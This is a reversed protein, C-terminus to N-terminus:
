SPDDEPTVAEVVANVVSEDPIPEKPMQHGAKYVELAKKAAKAMFDMALDGAERGDQFVRVLNQEGRWKPVFSSEGAAIADLEVVKEINDKIDLILEDLHTEILYLCAMAGEIDDPDKLGHRIFGMRESTTELENVAFTINREIGQGIPTKSKENFM